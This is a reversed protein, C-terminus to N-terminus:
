SSHGDYVRLRECRVLRLTKGSVSELNEHMLKSFDDHASLSRLMSQEVFKEVVQVSLNWMYQELTMCGQVPLTDEFPLPQPIGAREDRMITV